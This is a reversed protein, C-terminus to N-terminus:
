VNMLTTGNFSFINQTLSLFINGESIKKSWVNTKSHHNLETSNHITSSSRFLLSILILDFFSFFVFLIFSPFPRITVHFFFNCTSCSYKTPLKYHLLPLFAFKHLNLIYNQHIKWICKGNTCSLNRKIRALQGEIISWEMDYVAFQM